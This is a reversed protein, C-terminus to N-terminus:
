EDNAGKLSVQVREVQGKVVAKSAKGECAALCFEEAHWIVDKSLGQVSNMVYMFDGYHAADTISIYLGNPEGRVEVQASLKSLVKAYEEYMQKGVPEKKLIFQPLDAQQGTTKEASLVNQISSVAVILMSVACMMIFVPALGLLRTFETLWVASNSRFDIKM